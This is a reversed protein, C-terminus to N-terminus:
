QYYKYIDLNIELTPNIPLSFMPMFLRARDLPNLGVIKLKAYPLYFYVFRSIPQIPIPYYYEESSSSCSCSESDHHRHHHGGGSQKELIAVQKALKKNIEPSFSDDIKVMNFDVTNDSGRKENVRFHSFEQTELNQLTMYFNEVHNTFYKSLTNYIKKGANFPNRANVVTDVSGEIFPNVLRYTNKSM